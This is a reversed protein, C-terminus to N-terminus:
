RSTNLCTSDENAKEVDNRSAYSSDVAQDMKARVKSLLKNVATEANPMYKEPSQKIQELVGILATERSRYRSLNTKLRNRHM